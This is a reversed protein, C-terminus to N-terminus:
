TEGVTDRIISSPSTLWHRVNQATRKHTKQGVLFSIRHSQILAYKNSRQRQDIYSTANNESKLIARMVAAIYPHWRKLKM